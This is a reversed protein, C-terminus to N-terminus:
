EVIITKVEVSDGLSHKKNSSFIFGCDTHYKILKEPVFDKTTESVLDIRCYKIQEIKNKDELNLILIAIITIGALLIYYPIKDNM